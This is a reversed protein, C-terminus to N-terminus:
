TAKSSSEVLRRGGPKPILAIKSPGGPGPSPSSPRVPKRPGPALFLELGNQGILEERSYGLLTVLAQNCERVVGNENILVAERAAESLARFRQESERLARAEPEEESM